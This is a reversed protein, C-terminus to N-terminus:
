KKGGGGGANRMAEAQKQSAFAQMQEHYANMDAQDKARKEALANQINWEELGIKGAKNQLGIGALQTEMGPLAGLFQNKIQEEQLGIDARSKAGQMGVNQLAMLQDRMGQKAMREAAGQSLGMKSALASRGQAQASAAQQQAGQRLGQEELGQRQLALNYWASPTTGLARERIAEIARTDPTIDDGWSVRYKEDLMGTEPDLLSAFEPRKPSGDPNRGQAALANIREIEAQLAAAKQKEQEVQLYMTRQEPTMRIFDNEGLPQAGM